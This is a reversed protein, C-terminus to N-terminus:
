AGKRQVKIIVTSNNLAVTGTVGAVGLIDGAAVDVDLTFDSFTDVAGLAGTSVIGTTNTGGSNKDIRFTWNTFTSQTHGRWGTIVMDHPVLWGREATTATTGAHGVYLYHGTGATTTTTKGLSIYHPAGLWHARGSDYTYLEDDTTNYWLDGADPSPPAATGASLGLMNRATTNTFQSMTGGNTPHSNGVFSNANVLPLSNFNISNVQANLNTAAAGSSLQTNTITGNALQSGTIAAAPDISTGTIKRFKIRAAETDIIMVAANGPADIAATDDDAGSVIVSSGNGVAIASAVASGGGALFTSSSDKLTSWASLSYDFSSAAKEIKSKTWTATTTPNPGIRPGGEPGTIFVFTSSLILVGAAGSVSACNSISNGNADLNAALQSNGAFTNTVITNPYNTSGDLISSLNRTSTQLDSLNTDVIGSMNRTSTELDAFSSDVIGSMNRSSTELDDVVGSIFVTCTQIDGSFPRLSNIVDGSVVRTNRFDDKDWLEYLDGDKEFVFLDSDFRVSTSGSAILVNDNFSVGATSGDNIIKKGDGVEINANAFQIRGSEFDTIAALPTSGDLIASLNRTSVELSTVLTNPFNTSGDLIGSLNKTSLELSDVISCVGVTSTQMNGSFDGFGVSVETINALLGADIEGGTGWTGSNAYVTSSVATAEDLASTATNLATTANTGANRIDTNLRDDSITDGDEMRRMGTIQGSEDTDVILFNKENEAM